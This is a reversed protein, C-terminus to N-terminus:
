DGYFRPGEKAAREDLHQSVIQQKEEPTTAGADKADREQRGLAAKVTDNKNSM